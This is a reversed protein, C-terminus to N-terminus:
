PQWGFHPFMWGLEQLVIQNMEPTLTSEWDGVVGKRYFSGNSAEGAQRGGSMAEFSSRAVCDRIIAEHDSVGLFRFLAALVSAQNQRLGRYTVNMADTPYQEALALMARAGEAISPMALRIFQIKAAVENEGPQPRRFMHWASTLVDRPDRAIGIFKALPFLRKLRPFIFVNEPTKEGIVQCPKALYQQQMALLVGTGFLIETDDPTPLPYGGTSQFLTQNKNTLETRRTAMLADLPTALQGAFLGEGRCSIDPHCHLMHQLWTTGSRPAGGIFFLQRKLLSALEEQRILWNSM